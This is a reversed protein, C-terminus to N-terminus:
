ESLKGLLSSLLCSCGITKSTKSRFFLLILVLLILIVAGYIVRNNDEDIDIVSNDGLLVFAGWYFPSASLKDAAALYKLKGQRLAEDKHLGDKLGQYFYKMIQPTTADSVEWQALVLSKCGAYTFARGLSMIGEGKVLKGAGTNCASLVALDANLTMNYLEYAYLYGDEITDSNQTFYLKSNNPYTNDIEGHLALHLISYDQANTKFNAENALKGYYYKGDFIDAIVRVEERSGPLDKATNNRLTRLAIKAGEENDSNSFSFALLPQKTIREKPKSLEQFLLNASYAYSIAYDKLLYDLEKYDEASQNSTLLLDFNIHWLAGDPVIILRNGEINDKVPDILIKYLATASKSYTNFDKETITKQFSLALSDFENPKPQQHVFLSDKTLTFTYITSDGAFYELLTSNKDLLSQIDKVSAQGTKYKLNHYNPYNIEFQEILKEHERKLGFLKDEFKKINFSDGNSNKLQEKQLLTEYFSLDIKLLHEKQLLSDPIKAINKSKTELFSSFLLISKCKESVEFAKEVYYPKISIKSLQLAVSISKEYTNQTNESLFIHMETSKYDTKLKDIFAQAHRFSLFSLELDKVVEKNQNYRKYLADGKYNMTSLFDSPSLINELSPNSNIVTDEFLLANAILSKQYYDLAKDILGKCSYARGLNVLSKATTPHINGLTKTKIELAKTFYEISLDCDAKNLYANGINNYSYGVDKHLTDLIELRIELVKKHYVIAEEYNGEFNKILGMNDYVTAAEISNEGFHMISLDLAKKYYYYSNELKKMNYYVLGINNYSTILGKEDAMFERIRTVQENYQIAKDYNGMYSYMAAMNNYIKAIMFSPNDDSNLYFDLAKQYYFIANDFDYKITYIIAIANYNKAIKPNKKSRLNMSLKYSNLAENYNGLVYYSWGSLYYIDALSEDNGFSLEQWKELLKNLHDIAELYRHNDFFNNGILYNVDVYKEWTETQEYIESAMKYYVTSSDYLAQSHFEKAQLSYTNALTTDSQIEAFAILM